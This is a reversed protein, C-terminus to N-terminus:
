TNRGHSGPPDDHSDAAHDEVTPKAATSAICSVHTFKSERMRWWEAPAGRLQDSRRRMSERVKRGKMNRASVDGSEPTASSLGARDDGFAALLAWVVSPRM